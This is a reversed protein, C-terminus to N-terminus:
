SLWPSGYAFLKSGDIYYFPGRATISIFIMIGGIFYKVGLSICGESCVSCMIRCTARRYWAALPLTLM